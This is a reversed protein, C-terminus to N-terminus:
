FGPLEKAMMAFTLPDLPKSFLYGQGFDCGHDRLFNEQEAYEIGEAVVRYGLSKALVLIAKAIAVDSAEHPIDSVFTKDIKITDLPLNKLYSMSSYGTGFDDVSIKFGFRRLRDLIKSNQETHEMVYRETIEIEVSEPAIKLTKCTQMMEEIIKTQYFQVSSVNVAITDIAIGQEVWELYQRCANEFVWRGISVIAGSEEAIPIFEDPPVLGKEPHNWRLLAEAGVIRRSQLDYQPQYLLFFEGNELASRLDHEYELRKHIRESLERTYFRYSNMGEEKALHVASDANQMLGAADQADDPYLSIGISATMSLAYRDVAATEQLVSLIKEAVVAVDNAQKLSETLVIFEDGGYRALTDSERLVERVRLAFEKILSDGTQHGLTDNIFKFRDLDIVLVALRTGHREAVTIAHHLTEKFSVRNPLGTLTDHYAIFAVRAKQEELERNKQDLERQHRLLHRHRLLIVIVILTFVGAIKWFLAYDVGREYQIGLWKNEITRREEPTISDVAKEFIAHLRPEDNRLAMGLEWSEEFRGAIKISGPYHNRIVYGLAPFADLFGWLEGRDVMDLGERISDVYVFDIQPYKRSLVDAMEYNEVMGIRAGGLEGLETYFWADMRTALVLPLSLLPKTVNFYRARSPTDMSLVMLDCRRARAFEVSEHWNKTPVVEIPIGLRASFLELYDAGLGTYVGNELSELPMWNPDVCATLREKRKLYARDVASLHLGAVPNASEFAALWRDNLAMLEEDSVAQLAKNFLGQLLPWEKRIGIHLATGEDADAFRGAIKLNGLMKQKMYYSATAYNLVAADAQGYAVADLAEEPSGVEVPVFGELHKRIIESVAWGRILAIRKGELDKMSAIADEGHQTVIVKENVLYTDSYLAYADREPLQAFGQVVDVNGERFMRDLHTWSDTVFELRIGIKQALLRMYDVSYGKPTGEDNFDFPAWDSANAVRVLPHEAVFAREEPSLQMAETDYVFNKLREASGVALGLVAFTNAITAIKASDLRGFSGETIGSIRQLAKAEALLKARSVAGKTYLRDIVDVSEEMHTFAYRWGKMSARAFRRAREPNQRLEAESTFLIDGYFDFGYDIPNLMTYAIGRRDLELPQDTVYATFADVKGSVLDELDFSMPVREFANGTLGHSKLMAVVSVNQASEASIMVRKGRLKEVSDIGASKLSLLVLPSHQFLAELAVVPRGQMRELVLASDSVGYAARGALVDDVININKGKPRIEVDLGADAYYGKEKAMYFGAFQFLHTWKLQLTVAEREEAAVAGISLVASLVGAVVYKFMTMSEM